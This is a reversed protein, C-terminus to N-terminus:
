AGCKLHSKLLANCSLGSRLHIAGRLLSGQKSILSQNPISSVSISHFFRLAQKHHKQLFMTLGQNHYRSKNRDISRGDFLFADKTSHFSLFEANRQTCLLWHFCVQKIISNQILISSHAVSRYKGHIKQSSFAFLVFTCALFNVWVLCQDWVKM